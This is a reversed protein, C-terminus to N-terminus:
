RKDEGAIVLVCMGPSHIIVNQPFGAAQELPLGHKDITYLQISYESDSLDTLMNMSILSENQNEAILYHVNGDESYAIALYGMALSSNVIFKCSIDIQGPQIDDHSVNIDQIYHTGLLSFFIYEASQFLRKIM